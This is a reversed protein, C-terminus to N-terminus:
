APRGVPGTRPSAPAPPAPSRWAPRPRPSRRRGRVSRPTRPCPAPGPRGPRGPRRAGPGAHGGRRVRATSGGLDHVGGAGHEQVTVAGREHVPRAVVVPRQGLALTLGPLVVACRRDALHQLLGPVMAPDLAVQTLDTVVHLAAIREHRLHHAVVQHPGGAAAEPRAVLDVLQAPSVPVLRHGQERVVAVALHQRAPSLSIIRQKRVDPKGAPPPQELKGEAGSLAASYTSGLRLFPLPSAFTRKAPPRFALRPPSDRTRTTERPARMGRIRIASSSATMALAIAAWRRRAPMSTSTAASPFRAIAFSRNSRGSTATTSRISGPMSPQRIVSVSRESPMSVGITITLARPDSCSLTCASPM